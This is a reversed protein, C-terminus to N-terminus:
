DGNESRALRLYIASFIALFVVLTVSWASAVGYNNDTFAKRYISLVPTLTNNAPGGATLLFPETFLQVVTLFQLVLLLKMTTRLYPLTIHWVRQFMSAGDIEAAEYLEPGLDQLAALYILMTGGFNAWTLIVIIAIKVTAPNQLWLQPEAGVGALLSNLFGGEPAYILRWVLLYIVVPILNPLFFALRFFGKFRRMENVGIAVIIPVVFGIAISLLAFQLSNLWSVGFNPDRLMAAYNDFGVFSDEGGLRVDQFSMIFSNLMPYWAFLGFLLLAPLLFLYAPIQEAWKIKSSKGQGNRPIARDRVIAASRTRNM